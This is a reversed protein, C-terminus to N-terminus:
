RKKNADIMADSCGKIKEDIDPLRSKFNTLIYPM